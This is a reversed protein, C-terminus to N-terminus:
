RFEIKVLRSYPYHPPLVIRARYASIFQDDAVRWIRDITLDTKKGDIWISRTRINTGNTDTMEDPDLFVILQAQSLDSVIALPMGPAVFEGRHIMLRYLYKGPFAFHKKTIIDKLTTIRYRLDLIQKQLSIIKERTGLYQNKAGIWAAFANDKQTQSATKLKQMRHFFDKKRQLTEQLGKLMERNIKLTSQLLVLTDQSNKLNAHDLTDDIQIVTENKLTNGEATRNAQTVIGSLSSKITVQELPEVKAYHIKAMLMMPVMATVRLLMKKM